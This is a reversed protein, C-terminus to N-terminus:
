LSLLNANKGIKADPKRVYIPELSSIYNNKIILEYARKCITRAEPYPFRPLFIIESKDDKNTFSEIHLLGSGGIVIKGSLNSIYNEFDDLSILNIDSKAINNKDFVQVYLERKSANIIPVYFDFNKSQNSLKYSICELTSVSITKVKIALSVASAFALGIRVGTFSGPGSTVVLYDINKYTIDSKQLIEEIIPVINEAQSLESFDIINSILDPGRSIAVSLYKGCSDLGLIIM